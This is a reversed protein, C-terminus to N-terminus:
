CISLPGWDFSRLIEGLLSFERTARWTHSEGHATSEFELAESEAILSGMSFSRSATRRGRSRLKRAAPCSCRARSVLWARKRPATSTRTSSRSVFGVRAYRARPPHLTLTSKGVGGKGTCGVAVLHRVGALGDTM